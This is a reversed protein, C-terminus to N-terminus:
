KEMGKRCHECLFKKAVPFMKQGVYGSLYQAEEGYPDIGFAKSIHRCLHGNVLYLENTYKNYHIEYIGTGALNAVTVPENNYAMLPRTDGNTGILIPLTATTGAPIAQRLSIYFGGVYDRNRFAHNPLELTVNETGVTVAVTPLTNFNTRGISPFPFGTFFNPWM